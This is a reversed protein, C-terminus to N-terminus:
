PLPPAGAEAAVDDFTRPSKRRKRTRRLQTVTHQPPKWTAFFERRRREVEDAQRQKVARAADMRAAAETGPKFRVSLELPRDPLVSRRSTVEVDASATDITNFVEARSFPAIEPPLPESSGLNVLSNLLVALPIEGGAREIEAFLVALRAQQWAVAASLTVDQATV